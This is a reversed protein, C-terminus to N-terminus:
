ELPGTLTVTLTGQVYSGNSERLITLVASDGASYKSLASKLETMTSVATSDIGIIIDGEQIGAAEAGSGPIVSSVYIGSKLNRSSATESNVDLGYIGLYATQATGTASSSESGSSGEATTETEMLSRILDYNELIPIAYCVGEVATSSIKAESIGIIEGKSNLVCGGSNGNNIAANTQLVTISKGDANITRNEASIIGDTVSMGYGLANGIVIVGDGVDVEETSLTAIRIASITSSPIDSLKVAVIAIDNDESAAKIYGDVNEEDDFTVYLSSCDEVVHYSTLILLETSNQGVITGSGIGADVEETTSNTGPTGYYYDWISRYGGTSVLARSTISVVSPMVEDVIDSVDTLIFGTSGGASNKVSEVTEYVEDEGDNGIDFSIIEKAIDNSSSAASVSSLYNKFAGTVVVAAIVIVAAMAGLTIVLPIWWKGGSKKKAPAPERDVTYTNYKESNPQWRQQSSESSADTYYGNETEGSSTGSPCEQDNRNENEYEDNYMQDEEQLIKRRGALRDPRSPM